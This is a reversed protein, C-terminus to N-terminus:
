IDIIKLFRNEELWLANQVYRGELTYLGFKHLYSHLHQDLVLEIDWSSFSRFSLLLLHCSRYFFM